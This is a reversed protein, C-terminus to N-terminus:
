LGVVLGLSLSVWADRDEAMFMEGTSPDELVSAEAHYQEYRLSLDLLRPRVGPGGLRWRLGLRAAGGWDSQERVFSGTQYIDYYGYYLTGGWRLSRMYYGGAVGAHVDIREGLPARVLLGLEFAYHASKGNGTVDEFDDQLDGLGTQFGITPMLWDNLPRGVAVGFLLMDTFYDRFRTTSHKYGVDVLTVWDADSLPVLTDPAAPLAPPAEAPAPLPAEPWVAHEGPPPPAGAVDVPEGAELCARWRDWVARPVFRERLHGAEGNELRLRALFGGAPLAEFTAEALDPLDPFLGWREAEVRDVTEGVVPHLIVPTGAAAAVAPLLLAAALAVARAGPRRSERAAPIM